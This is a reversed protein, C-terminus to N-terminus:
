ESTECVFARQRPAKKSSLLRIASHSQDLGQSLVDVSPALVCPTRSLHILGLPTSVDSLGEGLITRCIM